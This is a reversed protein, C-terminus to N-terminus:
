VYSVHAPVYTSTKHFLDEKTVSNDGAVGRLAIDKLVDTSVRLINRVSSGSRQTMEVFNIDFLRTRDVGTGVRMQCSSHATDGTDRYLRYARELLENEEM